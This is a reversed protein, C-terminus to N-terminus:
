RHGYTLEEARKIKQNLLRKNKESRRAMDEIVDVKTQASLQKLRGVLVVLRQDDEESMILRLTAARRRVLKRRILRDETSMQPLQGSGKPRGKRERRAETRYHHIAILWVALCDKLHLRRYKLGAKKTRARGQAAAVKFAAQQFKGYRMIVVTHLEKVEIVQKCVWCQGLKGTKVNVDLIGIRM